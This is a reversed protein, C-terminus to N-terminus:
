KGNVKTQIIHGIVATNYENADARTANFIAYSWIYFVFFM